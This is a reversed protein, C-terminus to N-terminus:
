EVLCSVVLYDLKRQGGGCKGTGPFHGKGNQLVLLLQSISMVAAERLVISLFTTYRYVATLFAHHAQQFCKLHM